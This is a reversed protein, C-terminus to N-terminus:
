TIPLSGNLKVANDWDGVWNETEMTYGQCSHKSTRVPTCQTQFSEFTVHLVTKMFVSCKM